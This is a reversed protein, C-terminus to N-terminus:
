AEREDKVRALLKFNEADPLIFDSAEGTEKDIKVGNKGFVVTDEPGSYCIWHTQADLIRAVKSNDKRAFFENAIERAKEITM